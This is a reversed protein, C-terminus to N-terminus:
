NLFIPNEKAWCKWKGSDLRARKGSDFNCHPEFKLKQAIQESASNNEDHTYYLVQYGHQKFAISELTAAIRTGLGKNIWKKDVWLAIQRHEPVEGIPSLTGQGVFIEGGLFFLYHDKDDALMARVVNQATLLGMTEIGEAWSFHTSMHEANRKLALYMIAVDNQNMRRCVLDLEKEPHKPSSKILQFKSLNTAVLM